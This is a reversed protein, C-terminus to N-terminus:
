RTVTWSTGPSNAVTSRRCSVMAAVAFIKVEFRVWYYGVEDKPNAVAYRLPTSM